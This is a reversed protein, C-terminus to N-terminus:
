DDSRLLNMYDKNSELGPVRAVIDQASVDAIGVLLTFLGTIVFRCKM